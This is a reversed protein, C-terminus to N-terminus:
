NVLTSLHTLILCSLRTLFAIFIAFTTLVLFPVFIPTKQPTTKPTM